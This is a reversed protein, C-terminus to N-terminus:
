FTWLPTAKGMIVSLPQPGMYRGDFSRESYGSVPLFYGAEITFCGRLQPLPLGKGDVRAVPGVPTGNISFAEDNICVVDGAVAGIAKLLPVGAQEWPDERKGHLLM